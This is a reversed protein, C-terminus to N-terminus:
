ALLGSLPYQRRLVRSLVLGAGLTAGWVLHGALGAVSLTPLPAPVGVARLWLPMVLGAAGVWLVVGFGLAFLLTRPGRDLADVRPHACLAAFLLGFTVSHFLHTLWGIAGSEVGYLAGVVAIDGTTAQLVLGMAVGALVAISGTRLLATPTVGAAPQVADARPLSVTIATGRDTDGDTVTDGGNGAVRNRGPSDVDVAGGVHELLLRVMTLGFGASPDDYEPLSREELLARQDAPLGPGDDEISVAVAYEDVSVSVSVRPSAGTHEVANELLQRFVTRLGTTARVTADTDGEVTVHANPYHERLRDLETELLSGVDVEVRVAEATATKALVGVQEIAEDIHAANRDIITLSDTGGDTSVDAWGRIVNVKNLVEHRLIRNLVTLRDTQRALSRRHRHTSASRVGTLLGGVAGGLLVNVALRSERNTMPGGATTLVIVVVMAVVGLVTWLAVIDVFRSDYSSVVLGVGVLTLGLGLLLFPAPGLVFAVVGGEFQTSEAVTSRTLVFGIVAVLLGSYNVRQGGLSLTDM